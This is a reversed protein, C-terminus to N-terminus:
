FGFAARLNKVMSRSVPLDKASNKLRCIYRGGFWSVIEKVQGVNVITSRHIRVFRKPDLREELDALTRDIIHEKEATVLFTYKDSSYFYLTAAIKCHILLGHTAWV